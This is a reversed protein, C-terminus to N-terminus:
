GPKITQKYQPKVDWDVNTDTMDTRFWHERHILWYQLSNIHRAWPCMMTGSSPISSSIERNWPRYDIM